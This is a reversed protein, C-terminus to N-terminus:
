PRLLELCYKPACFNSFLIFSVTSCRQKFSGYISAWPYQIFLDSPTQGGAEAGDSLSITILQAVQSSGVLCFALLLTNNFVCNIRTRRIDKDARSAFLRESQCRDLVFCLVWVCVCMWMCRENSMTTQTRTRATPRCLALSFLMCSILSSIENAEWLVICSLHVSCEILCKSLWCDIKQAISLKHMTILVVGDFAFYYIKSPMHESYDMHLIIWSSGYVCVARCLCLFLRGFLHTRTNKNNAIESSTQQWQFPQHVATHAINNNDDLMFIWPFLECRDQHEANAYRCVYCLRISLCCSTVIIIICRSRELVIASIEVM